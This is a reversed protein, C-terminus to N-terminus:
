ALQDASSRDASRGLCYRNLVEESRLKEAWRALPPGRQPKRRRGSPAFVNTQANRAPARPFSGVSRPHGGAADQDKARDLIALYRTKSARTLWGTAAEAPSCSAASICCPLAAGVTDATPGFRVSLGPVAVVLAPLEDLHDTGATRDVERPSLPPQISSVDFNSCGARYAGQHHRDTRWRLDVDMSIRSRRSATRRPALPPHRDVQLFRQVHRSPRFALSVNKVEGETGFDNSLIAHRTVSSKPGSKQMYAFSGRNCTVREVWHETSTSM